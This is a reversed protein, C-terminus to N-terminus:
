QRNEESFVVTIKTGEGQESQLELRAHNQMVIHKVIALGLGTGGTSKSRSKDVRYFREFIREQHEKPIGIGTDEVELYVTKEQRFVRVIVNGGRNNYRIANDCLNFLLENMMEPNATIECSEGQLELSVEHRDANVQLMDVCSQALTYLNVKEFTILEETSVDLESLRIIDNILTLLRNASKRIGTAFRIVDDDSAMGSEILEAYGSISTLPTKLEHTINATFEQRMKASSMIDQHQKRIMNGFPALEAYSSLDSDSELEGAMQEIPAILKKTLFHALVISFIILGGLVVIMIPVANTFVSFVSDSEKSVRLVSGGDANQAYYLIDAENDHIVQGESDILTIRVGEKATLENADDTDYKIEFQQLFAVYTELDVIVHSYLTKYYVLTTLICTALISIVAILILKSNIKRKM